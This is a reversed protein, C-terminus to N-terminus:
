PGLDSLPISAPFPRAHQRRSTVPDDISSHALLLLPKIRMADDILQQDARDGFFKFDIVQATIAATSPGIVKLRYSTALVLTAAKAGGPEIATLRMAYVAVQKVRRVGVNSGIVTSTLAFRAVADPFPTM